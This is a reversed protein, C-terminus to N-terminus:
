QRIYSDPRSSRSIAGHLAEENADIGSDVRAEPGQRVLRSLTVVRDHALRASFTMGSGAPGTPPM